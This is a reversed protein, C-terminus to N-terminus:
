STSPEESGTDPDAVTDEASEGDISEESEPELAKQIDMAKKVAWITILFGVIALPWGMAIRAAGLWGVEDNNYLITQLVFRFGFIGAWVWTALAYWWRVRAIKRWSQGRGQLFGWIVGVAPWRVLASVALVSGYVAQTIIGYLFYGRADGTRWAILVGIGVGIAGSIAPQLNEKRIFSYLFMAVAVGIAGWIAADLGYLANLPVFTLIPISAFILGRVGGMQELLPANPDPLRSSVKEAAATTQDEDGANAM